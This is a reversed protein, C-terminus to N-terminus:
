LVFHRLTAVKVPTALSKGILCAEHPLHRLHNFPSQVKNIKILFFVKIFTSFKFVLNRILVELLIEHNPSPCADARSVQYPTRIDDRISRRGKHLDDMNHSKCMNHLDCM